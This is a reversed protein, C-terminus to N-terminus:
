TKKELVMDQITISDPIVLLKISENKYIQIIDRVESELRRKIHMKTSKNITFGRIHMFNKMTAVLTAVPVISNILYCKM